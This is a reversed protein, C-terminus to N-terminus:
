GIREPYRRIVAAGDTDFNAAAARSHIRALSADGGLVRTHGAADSTSTALLAGGARGLARYLALDDAPRPSPETFQVDYVIARAGAAHLRQVAAAHYLRRFPW